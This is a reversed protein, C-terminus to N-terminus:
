FYTSFSVIIKWYLKRKTGSFSYWSLYLNHLALSESSLFAPSQLLCQSVPDRRLPPYVEATCSQSYLAM